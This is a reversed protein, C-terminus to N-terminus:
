ILILNYHLLTNFTLCTVDFFRSLNSHTQNKLPFDTFIKSDINSCLIVTFILISYSCICGMVHIIFVRYILVVPISLTATHLHPFQKSKHTIGSTESPIAAMIQFYLYSKTLPFTCYPLPIFLNHSAKMNITEVSFITAM